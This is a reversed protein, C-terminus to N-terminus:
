NGLRLRLMNLATNAARLRISERDGPLVYRETRCGDPSDLSIYVLGVQKQENAGDPGAIGTIAIAYDAGAKQRAGVAMTEAVKESVAGFKKILGAPVGLLMTKSENSYTIWGQTFYGSSGPVDTLIKALLGATCSEAVALIKKQLALKEGVVQALTQEDAGFVLEGLKQRIIKEDEDVMRAASYEGEAQAIIWITIVGYEVTCNIQPNRGRKMLSGLMEAITSEGAGFCKIKRSVIHQQRTLSQLKPLVTNEFMIKMENPVGPLAFFVRGDKEAVIGPATGIENTLANSGRPLYAQKKNTDPMSKDRQAFFRSINELLDKKLELRVGLFDAVAERTVDDDTPGLGGTILIIDTKGALSELAEKISDIEDPVTHCSVVKMGTSLLMEALYMANTNTTQGTLLENGVSIIGATKM